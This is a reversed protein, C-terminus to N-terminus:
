TSPDTDAADDHSLPHHQSTPTLGLAAQLEAAAVRYSAGVHLVRCPFEGRKALEYAKTRGLGFARGATVIDVVAPLELLQASTLTNKM